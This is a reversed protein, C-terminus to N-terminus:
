KMFKKMNTLSEKSLVRLVEFETSKFCSNYDVDNTIFERVLEKNLSKRIQSSYSVLNGKTDNYREMSGQKMHLKLEAKVCELKSTQDKIKEQITFYEKMLHDIQENDM